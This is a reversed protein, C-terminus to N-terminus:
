VDAMKKSWLKPSSGVISSWSGSHTPHMSLPHMGKHRVRSRSEVTEPSASTALTVEAQETQYRRSFAEDVEELSYGNTEPYFFFVVLAAAWNFGVFVYFYNSSLNTLAIPSCQAFILNLSWNTATAISSGRSRISTPFIESQYVWSIIGLSTFFFSFAFFMAIAARLADENANPDSFDVYRALTAEVCMVAGMGVLSPILLKRRGVKDVLFMFMTNWFLALAGWVGIIMLSTSTSLGLSKYIRPGYNQIVNTGSTQTFAQLGCALLIRCRWQKSFLIHRWSRVVYQHEYAVSEHIQALEHEVLQSNTADRNLHLRALVSRGAGEKGTEILWRPSEPIFWVGCTLIIAPATQLSLPFRWSFASTRLSCGYGVWQAVMIGLGIMWQQMSALSARIQPPAIESCYVPITASMLGIAFGAIFRGAILMAITIAGGQLAAGFTALLGGISIVMRRGWSDSIHSALLSGVIAGGTYSSIIGGSAADSLGPSGFRDLFADQEISSSIVGSDYGFLFSGIAAFVCCLTVLIFAM